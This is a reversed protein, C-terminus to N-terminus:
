VESVLKEINDCLPLVRELKDVIMKQEDISPLPIKINKIKNISVGGIIGSLNDNFNLLFQPSQLFYYLYKNNITENIPSFNCLKNGFCVKENLIGIKRGASGGEICLLIDSANAYKFSEEAFPIKVGNDYNISHDFNVDKTAIYNYGESLNTYKSKKISESISNGTYIECLKSLEKSDFSLDFANKLISRKMDASFNRKIYYMEDVLPKLVNLKEFLFEIKEVINKQEELSPCPIVIKRLDTKSFKPTATGGKDGLLKKNGLSSDFYYKIYKKTIDNKFKLMVSNPALTMFEHVNPMIFTKGISGGINPLILEGGELKSKKLFEYTKKDVYVLENKFDNSLDLTRVFLAYKSVNDRKTNDRLTKFSGNAVYDTIVTAIDQLRVYKWNIPILTPEKNLDIAPFKNDKPIIGEKILKEKYEKIDHLENNIIDLDSISHVLKGTFAHLLISKKLDEIIM